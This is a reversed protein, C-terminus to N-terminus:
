RAGAKAPEDWGVPRKGEPLREVARVLDRAALALQEDAHEAAADGNPDEPRGYERALISRLATEQVHGCAVDVAIEAEFESM